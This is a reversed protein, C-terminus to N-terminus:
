PKGDSRQTLLYLGAGFLAAFLPAVEIPQGLKTLVPLYALSVLVAGLAARKPTASM